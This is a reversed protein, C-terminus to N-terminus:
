DNNSIIKENEEEITEESGKKIFEINNYVEKTEYMEKIEKVDEENPTPFEEKKGNKFYALVAMKLVWEDVEPFLLKSQRLLIDYDISGEIELDTPIDIVFM